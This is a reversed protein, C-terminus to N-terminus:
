NARRKQPQRLYNRREARLQELQRDIQVVDPHLETYELLLETRRVRLEVRKKDLEALYPDEVAAPQVPQEGEMTPPEGQRNPVSEPAPVPLAVAQPTLPADPRAAVLFHEIVIIGVGLMLFVGAPAGFALVSLLRPTRNAALGQARPVPALGHLAHALTRADPRAQPNKSLM